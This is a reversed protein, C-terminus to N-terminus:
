SSGTATGRRAGLVPQMPKLSSYGVPEATTCFPSLQEAAHSIKGSWFSFRHGGMTMLIRIWRVM